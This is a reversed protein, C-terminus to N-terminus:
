FLRRQIKEIAIELRAAANRIVTATTELFSSLSQSETETGHGICPDGPPDKILNKESIDDAISEAYSIKRYLLTVADGIEKHRPDRNKM